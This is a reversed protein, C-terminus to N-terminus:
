TKPEVAGPDRKMWSHKNVIVFAAIAPWLWDWATSKKPENVGLAGFEENGM